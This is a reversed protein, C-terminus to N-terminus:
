GMNKTILSNELTSIVIVISKFEEEENRTTALSGKMYKDLIILRFAGVTDKRETLRVLTYKEKM